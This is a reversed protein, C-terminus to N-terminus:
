HSSNLRTSKRDEIEASVEDPASLGAVYRYYFKLPCDLYYNLASPSFKAKPNARVDLCTAICVGWGMHFRQKNWVLFTGVIYELREQIGGDHAALLWRHLYSRGKEINM